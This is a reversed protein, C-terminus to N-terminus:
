RVIFPILPQDARIYLPHKPQGNKNQGLCAPRHRSPLVVEDHVARWVHPAGHNGWAYVVTRARMVARTIAAKNRPGGVPDLTTRLMEPNPSRLAYLNVVELLGHGERMAFGICRCITPDDVDEDATSPNLMIFLM